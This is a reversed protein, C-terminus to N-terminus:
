GTVVPPALLLVSPVREPEALRLLEYGIGAAGKMLGLPASGALATTQQAPELRDLLLGALHQVHEQLQSRQGSQSAV